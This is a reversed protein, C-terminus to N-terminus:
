NVKMSQPLTSSPLCYGDQLDQKSYFEPNTTTVYDSRRWGRRLQKYSLSLRSEIEKFSFGLRLYTTVLDNVHDKTAKNNRRQFNSKKDDNYLALQYEIFLQRMEKIKLQWILSYPQGSYKNVLERVPKIFKMQVADFEGLDNFPDIFGMPESNILKNYLSDRSIM